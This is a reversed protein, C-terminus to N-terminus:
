LVSLTITTLSLLIPQADANRSSIAISYAPLIGSHSMLLTRGAPALSFVKPPRAEPGSGKISRNLKQTSINWFAAPRLSVLM